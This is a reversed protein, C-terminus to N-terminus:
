NFYHIRYRLCQGASGPWPGLGRDQHNGGLYTSFVLQGSLDFRTVFADGLTNWRYLPHHVPFDASEVVGTVYVAGKLNEVAIGYGSEM